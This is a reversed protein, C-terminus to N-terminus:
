QSAARAALDARRTRTFIVTGPLRPRSRWGGAYDVSLQCRWGSPARHRGGLWSSARESDTAVFGARQAVYTSPKPQVQRRVRVQAVVRLQDTCLQDRVRDLVRTCRAGHPDIDLIAAYVDLDVVVARFGLEEDPSGRETRATAPPQREDVGQGRPPYPSCPCPLGDPSDHPRVHRIRASALRASAADVADDCSLGRTRPAGRSGKFPDCHPNSDWRPCKAGSLLIARQGTAVRSDPSRTGDLPTGGVDTRQALYTGLKLGRATGRRDQTPGNRGSWRGGQRLEAPALHFTQHAARALVTIARALDSDAPIPRHAHADTRLINALAM